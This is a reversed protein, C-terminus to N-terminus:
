EKVEELRYESLPAMMLRGFEQETIWDESKPAERWDEALLFRASWGLHTMWGYLTQGRLVKWLGVYPSPPQIIPIM